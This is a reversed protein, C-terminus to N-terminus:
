SSQDLRKNKTFINENRIKSKKINRTVTEYSCVSAFIRLFLTHLVDELNQTMFANLLSIALISCNKHTRNFLELLNM